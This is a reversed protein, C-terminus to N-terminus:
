AIADFHRSYFHQAYRSGLFMYFLKLCILFLLRGLIYCRTILLATHGLFAIIILGIALSYKFFSISRYFLLLLLLSVAYGLIPLIIWPYHAYLAEAKLQTLSPYFLQKNHAGQAIKGAMAKYAKCLLHALRKEIIQMRKQDAAIHAQELAFYTKQIEQFQKDTFLTFNDVSKLKQLSANYMKVKLAKLPFWEGEKYRGPLSKFLHSANRLRQIIPYERELIHEIEKPSINQNMLDSLRYHFDEELPILLGSLKEFKKFSNLLALWNEILKKEKQYEKNKQKDIYALITGPKLFHWPCNLPVSSIKLENRQKEIWLGPLISSLEFRFFSTSDSSDIADHIALREIMLRNNKPNQYFATQLEQHSFHFRNSPLDLFKKLDESEIWFLPVTRYAYYGLFDLSWLFGLPDSSSIPHTKILNNELIPAHYIDYLWLHAYAQVPRYRGKYLCPFEQIENAFLSHSIAVFIFFIASLFLIFKQNIM